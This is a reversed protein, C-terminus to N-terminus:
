SFNGCRSRISNEQTSWAIERAPESDRAGVIMKVTTVRRRSVNSKASARLFNGFIFDSLGRANAKGLTHFARRSIKQYTM